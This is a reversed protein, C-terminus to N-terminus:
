LRVNGASVVAFCAILVVGYKANIEAM